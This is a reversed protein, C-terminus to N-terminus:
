INPYNRAYQPNYDIAIKFEKMAHDPQGMALLVTGLYYHPEAMTPRLVIAKQYYLRAIKLNGWMQHARGLGLNVDPQDSDFAMAREFVLIANRSLGRDLLENGARLCEALTTLSEPDIEPIFSDLAGAIRETSSPGATVVRDPEFTQAISHFAATIEGALALEPAPAAGLNPYTDVRTSPRETDAPQQRSESIGSATGEGTPAIDEARQAEPAHVPEVTPSPTNDISIAHAVTITLDPAGGTRVSISASAFATTLCVVLAGVAFGGHPAIERRLRGDLIHDIRRRLGSKWPLLHAGAHAGSVYFCLREACDVLRRAYSRADYRHALVYDDCAFDSTEELLHLFSAILPQLPVLVALLQGLFNWLCDHRACHALEHCLVEDGVDYDEPLLVVPSIMGVVSPTQVMPTRYVVPAWEIDMTHALARVSRIIDQEADYASRRVSRLLLTYRILGVLRVLSVGVWLVIFTLFLMGAADLVMLSSIDRRASEYLERHFREIPSQNAPVPNALSVASAVTDMGGPASPAASGKAPSIAIAQGISRVAASPVTIGIGPIGYDVLALSLLPLAIMGATVMHLVLSATAAGIRRIVLAAAIGIVCLVGTQVVLTAGVRFGTEAFEALLSIGESNM